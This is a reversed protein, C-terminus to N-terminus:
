IIVTAYGTRPSSFRVRVTNDDVYEIEQPIIKQVADEYEIFVDILPYGHQSHRILWADSAEEQVHRVMAIPRKSLPM